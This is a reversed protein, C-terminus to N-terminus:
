FVSSFGKCFCSYDYSGENLVVFDYIEKCDSPGSRTGTIQSGRKVNNGEKVGKDYSRMDGCLQKSSSKSKSNNTENGCSLLTLAMIFSALINILRYTRM